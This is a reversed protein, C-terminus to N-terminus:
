KLMLIYGSGGSTNYTSAWGTNIDLFYISSFTSGTAIRCSTSWSQGGNTTKYIGNNTMFYGHDADFFRPISFSWDAATTSFCASWNKGGNTTKLLGGGTGCYGTMPDLFQIKFYGTFDVGTMNSQITWNKGGDSTTYFNGNMMSFGKLSDLFYFPYHQNLTPTAATVPFDSVWTIGGDHTTYMGEKPAFYFGTSPNIFQFYIANIAQGRITWTKGGDSTALLHNGQIFGNLSDVFQINFGNNPLSNEQILSWTKGSDSTSYIESNGILLGKQPNTFWIDDVNTQYVPIKVWSNLSDQIIVPSNNNNNSTSNTKRCAGLILLVLLPYLIKMATKVKSCVNQRIANMYIASKSLVNGAARFFPGIFM